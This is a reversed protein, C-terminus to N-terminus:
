GLGTTKTLVGGVVASCARSVQFGIFPAVPSETIDFGWVMPNKTFPKTAVDDPLKKRPATIYRSLDAIGFGGVVLEYRKANDNFTTFAAEVYRITARLNLSRAVRQAFVLISKHETCQSVTWHRHREESQSRTGDTDILGALFGRRFDAPSALLRRMNEESSILILRVRIM